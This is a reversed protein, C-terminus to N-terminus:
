RNAAQSREAMLEQQPGAGYERCEQQGVDDPGYASEASGPHEQGQQQKQGADSKRQHDSQTIRQAVSEDENGESFANRASTEHHHNRAQDIPLDGGDSVTKHRQQAGGNERECQNEEAA